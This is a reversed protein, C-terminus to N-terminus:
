NKRKREGGLIANMYTQVVAVAVYPAGCLLDRAEDNFEIPTKDEDEDTVGEWGILVESIFALDDDADDRDRLAIAEDRPLVKFHGKFTETKYGGDTPIRVKVDHKFSHEKRVTFGM